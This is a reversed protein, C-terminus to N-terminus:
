VPTLTVSYTTGDVTVLLDGNDWGFSIANPTASATRLQVTRSTGTGSAIIQGAFTANGTFTSAGTIASTGNVALDGSTSITGGSTITGQVTLNNSTDWTPAGNSLKTPTIGGNKVQLQGSSVELGGNAACTGSSGSVFAASDVLNNLKSSTVTDGSAFTTGKSLIPM